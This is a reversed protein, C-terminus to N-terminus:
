YKDVIIQYYALPVPSNLEEIIQSLMGMYFELTTGRQPSLSFRRSIELRGESTDKYFMFVVEANLPDIRNFERFKYDWNESHPVSSQDVSSFIQAVQEVTDYYTDLVLLKNMIAKECDEFSAFTEKVFKLTEEQIYDGCNITVDVFIAFDTESSIAQLTCTWYTSTINTNLRQQIEEILM